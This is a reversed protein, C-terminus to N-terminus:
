VPIAGSQLESYPIEWRDGGYRFIVKTDPYASGSDSDVEIVDGEPILQTNSADTLCTAHLQRVTKYKLM